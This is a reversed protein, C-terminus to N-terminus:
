SCGRSRFGLNLWSQGKLDFDVIVSLCESDVEEFLGESALLLGVFVLM